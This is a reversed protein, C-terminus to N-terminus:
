RGVSVKGSKDSSDDRENDFHDFIDQDNHSSCSERFEEFNSRNDEEMSANVIQGKGITNEHHQAAEYLDYHKAHHNRVHKYFSNYKSFTLYCDCISTSIM